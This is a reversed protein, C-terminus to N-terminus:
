PDRALETSEPPDMSHISDEQISWGRQTMESRTRQTVTGSVYLELLNYETEVRDLLSQINEIWYLHDVASALVIGNETLTGFTFRGIIGVSDFPKKTSVM